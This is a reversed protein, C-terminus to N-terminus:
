IITVELLLTKQSIVMHWVTNKSLITDRSACQPTFDQHRQPVCEAFSYDPKKEKMSRESMATACEKNNGKETNKKQTNKKTHL